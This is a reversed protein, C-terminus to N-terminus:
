NPQETAISTSDSLLLVRSIIGTLSTNFFPTFSCYVASRPMHQSQAYVGIGTLKRQNMLEASMNVHCGIQIIIHNM